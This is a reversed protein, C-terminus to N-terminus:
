LQGILTQSTEIGELEGHPKRTTSTQRKCDIACEDQDGHAAGHHSPDTGLDLPQWQILIEPEMSLDSVGHQEERDDVNRGM